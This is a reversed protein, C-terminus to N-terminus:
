MAYICWAALRWCVDPAAMASIGGVRLLRIRLEVKKSTSCIASMQPRIANLLAVAFASLTVAGARWAKGDSRLPDQSGGRDGCCTPLRPNSPVTRRIEQAPCWSPGPGAGQWPFKSPKMLIPNFWIRSPLPECCIWSKWMNRLVGSGPIRGSGLLDWNQTRFRRWSPVMMGAFGFPHM